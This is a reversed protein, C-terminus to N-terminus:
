ESFTEVMKMVVADGNLQEFSYGHRTLANIGLTLYYYREDCDRPKSFQEFVPQLNEIRGDHYIIHSNNRGDWKIVAIREVRIPESDAARSRALLFGAASLVLVLLLISKKM